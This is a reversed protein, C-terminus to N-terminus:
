VFPDLCYTDTEEGAKGGITRNILLIENRKKREKKLDKEQTHDLM